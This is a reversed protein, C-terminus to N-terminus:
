QVARVADAEFVIGRVQGAERVLVADQGSRGMARLVDGLDPPESFDVVWGPSRSVAVASAPVGPWQDRPVSEVVDARVIGAPRGEVDATVYVRDPGAWWTSIPATAPVIVVPRMVQPLPTAEVRARTRGVLISQSAGRWLFGVILVVWFLTFLEPPRGDALPLLIFWAVVFLVVIRGGWGAAVAGRNPSGTIRWVIALLIQGGDLPMGPLLNFLALLINVQAITQALYAWVGTDLVMAVPLAVAALVLNGIPGALATLGQSWPTTRGDFATHGGMLDAVIRRVQFGFARASVAHAAEHVLVSLLFGLAVLVGVGYARVGLDPRQAAVSPGVIATVIAALILWSWGIYVPVGALSGIRLGSVRETGGRESPAM